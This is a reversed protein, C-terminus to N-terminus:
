RITLWLPTFEPPRSISTSVSSIKLGTALITCSLQVSIGTGFICPQGHRLDPTSTLLTDIATSM